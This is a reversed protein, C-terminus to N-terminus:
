RRNGCLPANSVHLFGHGDARAREGTVEQLPLTACDRLGRPSRTWGTLFGTSTLLGNCYHPERYRSLTSTVLCGYRHGAVPRRARWTMPAISRM